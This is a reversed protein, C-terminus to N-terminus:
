LEADLPLLELLKVEARQWSHRAPETRYEVATGNEITRWVLRTSNEADSPISVAYSNEPQTMAGFRKATEQALEASDIILGIETNLHRSRQDLNMSGIFLRQRDLVYLKAHLSYNGYRSITSSQGSGRTNGLRSRVEYLEIGDKLLETRHHMYGSQASMEPASELSNTLIRIRVNHALRDQLLHLEDKSPIVYPSVILLEAQVGAVARAVPKYMLSGAGPPHGEKGKEPSDCVVEADAWILPVRGTLL